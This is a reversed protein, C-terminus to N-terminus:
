SFPKFVMDYVILFLLVLEIRSVIFLRRMIAAGAESTPGEADWIKKARGLQPGLYLAGSLFSFAFMALAALVWFQDFGWEEESVTMWIGTILVALSAPTFVRMGVFEFHGAMAHMQEPGSGRSIRTGVVQLALSGGVWVMATLVHLFHLWTEADM